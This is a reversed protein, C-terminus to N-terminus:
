KPAGTRSQIESAVEAVTGHDFLTGPALEVGYREWVRAALQAAFLSDGGLALFHDHVGIRDLGFLDSWIEAVAAETGNRAVTYHGSAPARGPDPPPLAARDLKGNSSLPLRDLVVFASPIMYEPLRKRLRERLGGEAGRDTVV